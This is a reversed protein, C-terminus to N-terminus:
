SSLCSLCINYTIYRLLNYDNVLRFSAAMFPYSEEKFFMIGPNALVTLDHDFKGVCM